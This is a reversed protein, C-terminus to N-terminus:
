ANLSSLVDETKYHVFRQLSPNSSMKELGRKALDIGQPSGTGVIRGVIADIRNVLGPDAGQTRSLADCLRLFASELVDWDGAWIGTAVANELSEFTWDDDALAGSFISPGGLELVMWLGLAKDYFYVSGDSYLVLLFHRKDLSVSVVEGCSPLAGEVCTRTELDVVKFQSESSVTLVSRGLIDVYVCSRLVIAPLALHCKTVDYIWLVGESSDKDKPPDMAKLNLIGLLAGHQAVLRPRLGEIRFWHAGNKSVKISPLSPDVSIVYKDAGITRELVTGGTEALLNGQLNSLTAGGAPQAKSLFLVVREGSAATGDQSLSLPAILRPVIKRKQPAEERAAPQSPAPQSEPFEKVERKEGAKLDLHAMSRKSYAPSEAADEVELPDIPAGLEQEEFALHAVSGDYGCLYLLAGDRSWRLDMIPQAAVEKLLVVPGSMGSSWICVSRDQSGTALIYCRKGGSLFIKPNFAVAEVPSVHGVLTYARSFGRGLIVVADRKGAFGLCAALYKGDPSWSMRAFFSETHVGKFPKTVSHLKSLEEDYIHMCGEDGYTALFLGSPSFALGKCEHVHRDLRRILTFSSASYVFVNGDYGSTALYKRSWCVNSVDSKHASIRKHLLFGGGQAADRPGAGPRDTWILLSGDDGCSALFRGSLDFRVCMVAGSHKKHSSLLASRDEDVLWHNVSGDQGATVVEKPRQPHVDVSFISCVKKNLRHVVGPSLVVKM